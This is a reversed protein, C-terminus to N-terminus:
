ETNTHILGDAPSINKDFSPMYGRIKTLIHFFYSRIPLRLVTAMKLIEKLQQVKASILNQDDTPSIRSPLYEFINLRRKAYRIM